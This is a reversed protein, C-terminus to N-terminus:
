RAEISMIHACQVHPNLRVFPQEGWTHTEGTMEDKVQFSLYTGPEPAALGLAARNLYV